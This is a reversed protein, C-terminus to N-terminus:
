MSGTNAGRKRQGFRLAARRKAARRSRTSSVAAKCSSRMALCSPVPPTRRLSAEGCPSAYRGMAAVIKRLCMFVTPAALTSTVTPPLSRTRDAPSARMPKNDSSDEGFATRDALARAAARSRFWPANSRVRRRRAGEKDLWVTFATTPQWSRARSRRMTAPAFSGSWRVANNANLVNEYPNWRTNGQAFGQQAWDTHVRLSISAMEGSEGNADLEYTGPLTSAPITVALSFGGDLESSATAIQTGNFFMYVQEGAAFGGGTVNVEAGPPASKRSITLFGAVGLSTSRGSLQTGLDEATSSCGPHLILSLSCARILTRM